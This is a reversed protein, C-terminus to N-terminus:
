KHGQRITYHRVRTAPTPRVGTRNYKSTNIAAHEESKKPAVYVDQHKILKSKDFRKVQTKTREPYIHEYAMRQIYNAHRSAAAMFEEFDTHRLLNKLPGREFNFNSRASAPITIPQVIRGETLRKVGVCNKFAGNEYKRYTKLIVKGELIDGPVINGIKAFERSYPIYVHDTVVEGTEANTVNKVFVTVRPNGTNRDPYQSFSEVTMRVTTEPDITRLLSRNETPVTHESTMHRVIDSVVTSQEIPASNDLVRIREPYLRSLERYGKMVRYAYEEDTDFPDIDTPRKNRRAKAVEPTVDLLFTQEPQIGGTCFANFQQLMSISQEDGFGQYALTSDTFRDLIVYDYATQVRSLTREVMDARSALFLLVTARKTKQTNDDKLINRIKEGLATTGPERVVCVSFGQSELQTKVREIVTTKGSGDIGEFSFLRGVKQESM